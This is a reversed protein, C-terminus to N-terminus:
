KSTIQNFIILRNKNSNSKYNTYRIKTFTIEYVENIWEIMRTKTITKHILFKSEQNQMVNFMFDLNISYSSEKIEFQQFMRQWVEFSNDKFINNHLEKKDKDLEKTEKPQPQKDTNILNIENKLIELIISEVYEIESYSLFGTFQSNTIHMLNLPLMDPTITKIEKEIEKTDENKAKKLSLVKYLENKSENFREKCKVKLDITVNTLKTYFEIKTIFNDRENVKQLRKFYTKLNEVEILGEIIIKLYNNLEM